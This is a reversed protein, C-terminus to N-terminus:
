GKATVDFELEIWIFIKETFIDNKVNESINHNQEDFNQVEARFLRALFWKKLLMFNKSGEVLLDRSPVRLLYELILRQIMEHILRIKIVRQDITQM